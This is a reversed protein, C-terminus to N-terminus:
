GVGADRQPMRSRCPKVFNPRRGRETDNRGHGLGDVREDVLEVGCGVGVLAAARAIRRVRHGRDDLEEPEPRPPAHHIEAGPGPLQRPEEHRGPRLHDRDLRDGPHAALELGDQRPTSAISPVASASGSALPDTSPTTTACANWQNSMTRARDSSWRTTAGPPPKTIM